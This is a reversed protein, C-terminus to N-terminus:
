RWYKDLTFIGPFYLRSTHMQELRQLVCLKTTPNEELYDWGPVNITCRFLAIHGCMGAASNDAYLWEHLLLRASSTGHKRPHATAIPVFCVRSLPEKQCICRCQKSLIRNNFFILESICYIHAFFVTSFFDKNYLRKILINVFFFFFISWNTKRYSYLSKFVMEYLKHLNTSYKSQLKPSKKFGFDVYNWTIGAKKSLVCLDLRNMVSGTSQFKKLIERITSM